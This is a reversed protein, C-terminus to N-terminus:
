TKRWRVVVVRETRASVPAHISRRGGEGPVWLVEAHGAVALVPIHDRQGRPIKADVMLDQLRKRGGMGMPEIYDGPQRTRWVLDGIARLEELDFMAALGDEGLEGPQSWGESIVGSELRWGSGTDLAMEPEFAIEWARPVQPRATVQEIEIPLEEAQQQERHRIYGWGAHSGAVMGHPLHMARPSGAEGALISAVAEVQKFTFDRGTGAVRLLAERVVRRQAGKALSAFREVAIELERHSGDGRLMGALLESTEADLWEDEGQAILSLNYLHEKIALSYQMQLVPLLDHRVRNRKYHREWNTSDWRPELGVEKCYDVIEWRWVGLLPRFLAVERAPDFAAFAGLTEDSPPLHARGLMQMGALGRLGTGRLLSMLVTEVQDDANHAVAVTDRREQALSAFFAYRARRAADEVSLKHRRAYGPVDFQGITCRLGWSEATRRVFEVDEQAEEARVWHNLHAVHLTEKASDGRLARLLHLMALSDAGGSVGVVLPASLLREELGHKHAEELVRRQLSGGSRESEKSMTKHPIM